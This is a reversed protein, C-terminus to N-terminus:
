ANESKGKMFASLESVARTNNELAEIVKDNRVAFSENMERVEERHQKNLDNNTKVMLLYAVIPFGVTSVLQSVIEMGDM